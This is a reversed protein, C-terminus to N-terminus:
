LWDLDNFGRHIYGGLASSPGEYGFKAWTEPQNYLPTITDGYVKAFFATGEIQKIAAVRTSEDSVDAYAKGGSATTSANLQAIGDALLKKTSPEVATEALLPAIAKEYASDPLRDHPFLDRTLALLTRTQAADFAAADAAANAPPPEALLPRAAIAAVTAAGGALFVRRSLKHAWDFLNL